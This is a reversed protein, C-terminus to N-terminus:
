SGISFFAYRLLAEGCVLCVAAALAIRRKYPIFLTGVQMLIAALLLAIWGTLRLTATERFAELPRLPFTAWSAGMNLWDCWSPQVMLRALLALTVIGALIFWLRGRAQGASAYSLLCILGAVGLMVTAGYFMVWTNPHMWTIVSSHVYIAGMCFIDALGFLVTVWLLPLAVARKVYMLLACLALLACYCSALLIERSLWSSEIHRLAHLANLPYGLHFISACLGAVALIFAGALAPFSLVSATRGRKALTEIGALLLMVGVSAQVLLTFIILPWENM